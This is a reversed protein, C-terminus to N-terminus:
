QQPSQGETLAQLLGTFYAADIKAAKKADEEKMSGRNGLIVPQNSQLIAVAIQVAQAQSYKTM